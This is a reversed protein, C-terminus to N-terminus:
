LLFGRRCDTIFRQTTMTFLFPNLLAHLPFVLVILVLTQSGERTALSLWATICINALVLANSLVMIVTVRIISSLSSDKGHKRGIHTSRTDLINKLILRYALLSVLVFITNLVSFAPLIPYKWRCYYFLGELITTPQTAHTDQFHLLTCASLSIIWAATIVLYVLSKTESLINRRCVIGCYKDVSILM